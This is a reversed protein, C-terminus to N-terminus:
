KPLGANPVAPAAATVHPARKNSSSKTHIYSSFHLRVARNWRRLRNTFFIANTLLNKCKASGTSIFSSAQPRPYVTSAEIMPCRPWFTTAALETMVTNLCSEMIKEAPSADAAAMMVPLVMPSPLLGM